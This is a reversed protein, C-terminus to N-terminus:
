PPICSLLFAKHTSWEFTESPKHRPILPQANRMIKQSLACIEQSPDYRWDTSPLSSDGQRKQGARMAAAKRQLVVNPPYRDSVSVAVVPLLPVGDPSARHTSAFIFCVIVFATSTPPKFSSNYESTVNHFRNQSENVSCPEDADCIVAAFNM